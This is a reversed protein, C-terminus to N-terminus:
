GATGPAHVWTIKRGRPPKEVTVSGPYYAEYAALVDNLKDRDRVGGVRGRQLERTSVKGGDAKARAVWTLVTKHIAEDKRSYTLADPDDLARWVDMVYDIVAIACGMADAPITGGAGPNMSEAIVLAVRACQQDAKSLAVRVMNKPEAKASTKWRTGAEQWLLQAQTPKGRGCLEWDRRQASIKCLGRIAADWGPTGHSEIWPIDATESLHPLWRPRFGDDDDGLVDLRAIQLGGVITLVPHEVRIDVDGGVRSYRWPAGTWLGLYRDRDGNQRKYQGINKIGSALEDHVAIRHPSEKLLRALKEITMDEILHTRDIPKPGRQGAPTAKWADLQQSYAAYVANDQERFQQFARTIAPSKGGGSPAILPVWLIPPVLDDFIWLRAASCTGALAALGAGAVLPAPLASSAVLDALPGVLKDAPYEATAADAPDDHEPSTLKVRKREHWDRLKEPDGGFETVPGEIARALEGDADRERINGPDRSIATKYADIYEDIAEGVGLHGTAGLGVMGATARVMADYRSGGSAQCRDLETLHKNLKARVSGDMPGDPLADMWDAVGGSFGGGESKERQARRLKELWTDPLDPLDELDPIDAENGDEDLWRYTLGTDPHVSPWCVVYRHFFQITEGLDDPLDTVLETGPPVQFM